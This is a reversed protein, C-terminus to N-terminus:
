RFDQSKIIVSEMCDGDAKRLSYIVARVLRNSLVSYTVAATRVDFEPNQETDERELWSELWPRWARCQIASRNGLLGEPLVVPLSPSVWRWQWGAVLKQCNGIKHFM